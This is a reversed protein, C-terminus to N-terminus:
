AEGRIAETLRVRTRYLVIALRRGLLVHLISFFLVAVFLHRGWMSAADALRPFRQPLGDSWGFGDTHIFYFPIALIQYLISWFNRYLATFIVPIALYQNYVGSSFLVVFAAYFAFVELYSRKRLLAGSLMLGVYFFIRELSKHPQMGLLNDIAAPGFVNLFPANDYGYQFVWMRIGGAGEPLLPVFSALFVAPPLVLWILRKSFPRVRFAMWLPFLFLIHKVALSLGILLAGTVTQRVTLASLGGEAYEKRTMVYHVSLLGVFLSLNDFQHHHGTIFISWPALLFFIAAAIGAHRRLVAAIGIDALCLLSCIAIRLGDYAFAWKLGGLIYAWTPAYNYRSTSAYVNKGALIIDAVIHYSQLDYNGKAAM